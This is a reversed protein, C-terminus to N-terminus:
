IGNEIRRNEFYVQLGNLLMATNFFSRIIEVGNKKFDTYDQERLLVKYETGNIKSNTNLWDWWMDKKKKDYFM